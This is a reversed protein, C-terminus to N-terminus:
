ATWTDVTVFELGRDRASAILDPLVAIAHPHNDHFLVLDGSRFPRTDFYLRVEDSRQKNFDKPDVNWLVTTLGRRWLRCLDGATLKGNPPRYLRPSRGVIDSIVKAGATVEDGAQRYTLSSRSPHSYTHNGISHGETALRRVISPHKEAERGIVFFTAAVQHKALIDLLRPTLDPHPGDDFTLCVRM